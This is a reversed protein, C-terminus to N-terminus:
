PSDSPKSRLNVPREVERENIKLKWVDRRDHKKLYVCAKELAHLWDMAKVEFSHKYYDRSTPLQHSFATVNYIYLPKSPM